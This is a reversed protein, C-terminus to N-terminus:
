PWMVFSIMIIRVCSLQPLSHTVLSAAKLTLCRVTSIPSVLVDSLHKTHAHQLCVQYLSKAPKEINHVKFDVPLSIVFISDGHCSWSLMCCIEYVLIGSPSDLLHCFRLITSNPGYRFSFVLAGWTQSAWMTVLCFKWNWPPPLELQCPPRQTHSPQRM